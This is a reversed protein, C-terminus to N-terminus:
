GHAHALNTHLSSSADREVDSTTLSYAAWAWHLISPTNSVIGSFKGERAGMRSLRQAQFSMQSIVGGHVFFLSARLSPSWTQLPKWSSRIYRVQEYSSMSYRRQLPVPSCMFEAIFMDFRKWRENTDSIGQTKEVKCQGIAPFHFSSWLEMPM